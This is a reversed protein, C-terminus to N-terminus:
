SKLRVWARGGRANIDHCLKRAKEATEHHTERENIIFSAIIRSFPGYVEFAWQNAPNYKNM